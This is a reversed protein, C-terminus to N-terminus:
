KHPSKLPHFRHWSIVILVSSLKLQQFGVLRTSRQTSGVLKFGYYNWQTGLRVSIGRWLEWCRAPNPFLTALSKSSTLMNTWGPGTAWGPSLLAKCPPRRVLHSSASGSCLAAASRKGLERPLYIQPGKWGCLACHDADRVGQLAPIAHSSPGRGAPSNNIQCRVLPLLAAKLFM